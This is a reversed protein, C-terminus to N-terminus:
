LFYGSWPKSTYCPSLTFSETIHSEFKKNLSRFFIHAKRTSVALNNLTDRIDKRGYMFVERTKIAHNKSGLVLYFAELYILNLM